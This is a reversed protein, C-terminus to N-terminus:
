PTEKGLRGHLRFVAAIVAFPCPRGTTVAVKYTLFPLAQLIRCSPLIEHEDWAECDVQCNGDGDAHWSITSM